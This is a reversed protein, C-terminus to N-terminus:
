LSYDPFMTLATIDDFHGIGRGQYAGWVDGVFIQVRKYFFIQRGRCVSSDRFGPFFATILAVLASASKQAARVVNAALGGFHALLVSGTERVLRAREEVEPIDDRIWRKIDDATAAALRDADFAHKDRMLASKLGGALHCYELTPAPWFCFNLTDMLFIYQVTAEENAEDFFHYEFDKWLPRFFKWPHLIVM